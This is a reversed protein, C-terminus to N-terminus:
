AAWAVGFGILPDSGKIGSAILPESGNLNFDDLSSGKAKL